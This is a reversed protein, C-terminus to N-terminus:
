QPRTDWQNELNRRIVPDNLVAENARRCLERGIFGAARAKAAEPSACDYEGVKKGFIGITYRPQEDFKTVWHNDCIWKSCKAEKIRHYKWNM